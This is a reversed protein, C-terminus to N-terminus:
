GFDKWMATDKAWYLVRPLDLYAKLSLACLIWGAPNYWIYLINVVGLSFILLIFWIKLLLTLLHKHIPKM